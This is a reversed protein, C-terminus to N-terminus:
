GEHRPTIPDTCRLAGDMPSFTLWRRGDSLRQDTVPSCFTTVQGARVVLITRGAAVLRFDRSDPPLSLVLDVPPAAPRIEVLDRAGDEVAFPRSTMARFPGHQIHVALSRVHALDPVSVVAPATTRVLAAFLPGADIASLTWEPAPDPHREAVEDWRFTRSRSRGSVSEGFTRDPLRVQVRVDEPVSVLYDVPGNGLATLTLEEHATLGAATFGDGTRSAVRVSGPAGRIIRLNGAPGPDVRIVLRNGVFAFQERAVMWEQAAAPTTAGVTALVALAIILPHRM